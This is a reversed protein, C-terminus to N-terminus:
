QQNRNRSYEEEFIAEKSWKDQRQTPMDELPPIDSPLGSISSKQRMQKELYDARAQENSTPELIDGVPPIRDPIMPMHSSQTMPTSEALPTVMKTMGPLTSGHMPQAPGYISALSAGRYQPEVTARESIIRFGRSFRGYMTGNVIDVAYITPGYRYSLGTLEVLVMPNNDASMSDMYGCFKNSIKYNETVPLYLDPYKGEEKTTSMSMSRPEKSRIESQSAIQGSTLFKSSSSSEPKQATDSLAMQKDLAALMTETIDTFIAAGEGLIHGAGMPSVVIHETPSQYEDEVSAQGKQSPLPYGSDPTHRPRAGTMINETVGMSTALTPIVVPPTAPVREGSITVSDIAGRGHGAEFLTDYDDLSTYTSLKDQNVSRPDYEIGSSPLYPLIDSNSHRPPIQISQTMHFAGMPLHMDSPIAESVQGREPSVHQFYPVPSDTPLSRTGTALSRAHQVIRSTIYRAHDSDLAETSSCVSRSRNMQSRVYESWSVETPAPSAPYIGHRTVHRDLDELGLPRAVGFQDPALVPGLRQRGIGHKITINNVYLLDGVIFIYLIRLSLFFYFIIIVESWSITM